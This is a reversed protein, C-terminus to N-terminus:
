ALWHSLDRGVIRGLEVIEPTFEDILRSRLGPSLGPPAGPVSNLRAALRLALNRLATPRDLPTQLYPAMLFRQVVASRYTFSPNSRALPLPLDEVDLFGFLRSLFDHPADVLDDYLSLHIQSRPFRDLYRHVQGAYSVVRRYRLWHGGPSRELRPRGRESLLFAKDFTSATEYGWKRAEAYVSVMADLPNRLVIVVRAEPSFESIRWAAEESYLYVPSSEGRIRHDARSSEFLRLYEVENSGWATRNPFDPALFGPEKVPSMFIEPHKTLTDHLSTTGAKAAGVIFLNPRDIPCSESAAHSRQGRDSLAAM